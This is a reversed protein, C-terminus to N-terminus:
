KEKLKQFNTKKLGAPSLFSRVRFKPKVSSPLTVTNKKKTCILKKEIFLGLENLENM